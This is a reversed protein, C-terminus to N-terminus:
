FSKKFAPADVSAVRGVGSSAVEQPPKNRVIHSNSLGCFCGRSSALQVCFGVALKWRLGGSGLSRMQALLNIRGWEFGRKVVRHRM